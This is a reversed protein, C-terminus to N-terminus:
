SLGRTKRLFWAEYVVLGVGVAIAAIGAAMRGFGDGASPAGLCWYAFGFALLTSAGIFVVHFARLSM